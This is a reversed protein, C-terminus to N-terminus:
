SGSGEPIFPSFGNPALSPSLVVAQAAMPGLAAVLPTTPQPVSSNVHSALSVQQMPTPPMGSANHSIQHEKLASHLQSGEALVNYSSYEILATIDKTVKTLTALNPRVENLIPVDDMASKTSALIAIVVKLFSNLDDWFKKRDINGSVEMSEMRTKLRRTVDVGTVCNATLDRLKAAVTPGMATSSKGQASAVASKSITQTLQGLVTQAANAATYIREYLQDDAVSIAEGNRLVENLAGPSTAGAIAASSSASAMAAGLKTTSSSSSSTLSSAPINSNLSTSPTNAVTSAAAASTNATNSKSRPRNTARTPYVTFWANHLESFSQFATLILSRVFKADMYATLRDLNARIYSNINRFSTLCEVSTTIVRKIDDEDNSGSDQKEEEPAELIELASVLSPFTTMSTHLLSNLKTTLTQDDCLACCRRVASHMEALSFLVKRCSEVIKNHLEYQSSSRMEEPLTSLRRFYAGPVSELPESLSNLRSRPKAISTSSSSKAKLSSAPHGTGTNSNTATTTTLPSPLPQHHNSANSDRRVGSEESDNRGSEQSHQRVHKAFAEQVEEEQLQPIGDRTHTGHSKKVVFGMRKAARSSADTRYGEPSPPANANNSNSNQHEEFSRSHSHSRNRHVSLPPPPPQLVFDSQQQPKWASTEQLSPERSRDVLSYIKERNHALYTKLSEIWDAQEEPSSPRSKVVEKPPMILPNDEIELIQLETMDVISPPLYEFKNDLMSICMLNKLNGLNRPLTRLRNHSIDLIKLNSCRTLVEPLETLRNSSIDLYSLRSMSAFELPLTTLWNERLSLKTTYKRLLEIVAIPLTSINLRNLMIAIDAGDEDEDGDEADETGETNESEADDGDEEEDEDDDDDEQDSGDRDEHSGRKEHDLDEDSESDSEGDSTSDDDPVSPRRSEGLGRVLEQRAVQLLKQRSIASELPRSFNEEM